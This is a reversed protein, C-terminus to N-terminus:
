VAKEEEKKRGEKRGEGNGEKKNIKANLINIYNYFSVFHFVIVSVTFLM